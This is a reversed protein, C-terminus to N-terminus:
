EWVSPHNGVHPLAMLTKFYIRLASETQRFKTVYNSMQAEDRKRPTRVHGADHLGDERPQYRHKEGMEDDDDDDHTKSQTQLESVDLM